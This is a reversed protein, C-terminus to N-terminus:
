EMFAEIEKIPVSNPQKFDEFRERWSMPIGKYFIQKFERENLKADARLLLAGPLVPLVNSNHYQLLSLFEGVRMERAQKQALLYDKHNDYTDLNNTFKFSIFIQILEWFHAVIETFNDSTFHQDWLTVDYADELLQKWKNFLKPETTRGLTVSAKRFKAVCYVIQFKSSAPGIFPLQVEVTETDTGVTTKKKTTLTKLKNPDFDYKFPICSPM